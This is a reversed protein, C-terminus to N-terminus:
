RTEIRDINWRYFHDLPKANTATQYDPLSPHNLDLRRSLVASGSSTAIVRDRRSDFGESSSSRVKQLDQAIFHVKYTNSRTTLRSYLHAYPREKSNDGTLRHNNWFDAMEDKSVTGSASAIGEPVLYQECIQGPTLFVKGHDFVEQKWLALTQRADLHRRFRNLPQEGTKYSAAATDPIAMLTEAKMAAHLATARTIHTFPLIEHNLNIKGETELHTSIPEPELVPMWFLDLLLHDPVRQAGFHDPQPRFLLTQWPVQARSGTPLSGFMVPSPLMRQPSFAALTVPPVEKGVQSVNDFYPLRGDHAAAWHGDDPRNGYPGDPANGVGNDFDGTVGPLAPGREGKDLRLGDLTKSVPLNTWKGLNWSLLHTAKGTLAGPLDPRVSAPYNVGTIYGRHETPAEALLPDRLTHVQSQSGWMPHPVFIPSTYSGSRIEAWRQTATLRYDGHAPALSQVVDTAALFRSGAAASHHLRGKLDHVELDKDLSPTPLGRIDPLVLPVVQVLDVKDLTAPADYLAVKLQNPDRADGLFQLKPVTGDAQARIIVPKFQLVGEAIARVGLSGGAGNWLKPPLEGSSATTQSDRPVLPVGNLTFTPLPAERHDHSLAGDAPGGALAINVFPRYDTWGHQPLFTEVLFGVELERDGPNGPGPPKGRESKGELAAKGEPTPNGKVNGFEDVEARCTIVLAVESITLMRGMGQIHNSEAKPTRSPALQLASIQGFGHHEAGPCLVSYQLKHDLQMDACNAARLYDMMGLLIADRDEGYKAAFTSGTVGKHDFGPFTQSTLRQLYEFLARNGSIVRFDDIGNGPASRQVFYAKDKVKAAMAVKHNYVTDRNAASSGLTDGNLLTDKTMPWMAVRPTGFLTTEPAASQTTLFFRSRQMQEVAEPHQMFFRSRRRQGSKGAATGWMGPFRSDDVHDFLLEDLCAYRAQRVSEHSAHNWLVPWDAETTGGLSTGDNREAVTLRGLRWLDRADEYSMAEMASNGTNYFGLPSLRRNPLLVSSLCVGAPHGPHRMYELRSPVTAALAREQATDARPTDWFSGEAATNVNVKSSEDDVWFAFRSVVPNSKDAEEGGAGFFRGEEDLTGLTGDRLKYIWRVPMPLRQGNEGEARRPVAGKEDRYEFGEVSTKVDGTWARPDVIPFRLAGEASMVPENLDVYEDTRAAWDLPVDKEVQEVSDATMDAASYLKWIKELRGDMGHVRIAGPQSTWPKPVNNSFTESTANKLQALAVHLADQSHLRARDRGAVLVSEKYGDGTVDLLSVVLILMLAVMILTVLLAVGRRPAPRARLILSTLKLM